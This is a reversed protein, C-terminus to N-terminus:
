KQTTRYVKGRFRRRLGAAVAALLLLTITSPEPAAFTSIHTLAMQQGLQILSADTLHWADTRTYGRTDAQSGNPAEAMGFQVSRMKEIDARTRGGLNAPVDYYVDPNADIVALTFNILETLGLDSRLTDLMGSFRASYADMAIDSGTDGEGQFWFFGRIVYDDGNAEIARLQTELYGTGSANFFDTEYHDQPADTYWSQLWSGPHYQHLVLPNQYSSDAQLTSQIANAWVPKANSQGDAFFIDFTEANSRNVSLAMAALALAFVVRQTSM